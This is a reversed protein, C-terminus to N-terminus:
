AQVDPVNTLGMDRCTKAVVSKLHARRVRAVIV